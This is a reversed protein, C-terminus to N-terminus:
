APGPPTARHAQRVEEDVPRDEGAHQRDEDRQDANETLSLAFGSLRPLFAIMQEHFSDIPPREDRQGSVFRAAPQVIECRSLFKKNNGAKRDDVRFDFQGLSNM